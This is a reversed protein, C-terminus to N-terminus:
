ENDEDRRRKKGRWDMQRESADGQSAGERRELEEETDHQFLAESDSEQEKPLL